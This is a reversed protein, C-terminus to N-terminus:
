LQPVKYEHSVTGIDARGVLMRAIVIIKGNHLRRQHSRRWHLRPPSRTAEGELRAREYYERPVITVVTHAVRPEKKGAKPPAYGPEVGDVKVRTSSRSNIMLTLYRGLSWNSAHAMRMGMKPMFGKTFDGQEEFTIDSGYCKRLYEPEGDVEYEYNTPPVVVPPVVGPVASKPVNKRRVWVGDIAGTGQHREYDIRTVAWGRDEDILFGSTYGGIKFEYWVQPAPLPILGQDFFMNEEDTLSPVEWRPLTDWLPQMSVLPLEGFDFKEAERIKFVIEALEDKKKPVILLNKDGRRLADLM